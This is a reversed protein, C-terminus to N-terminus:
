FVILAQMAGWTICCCTWQEGPIVPIISADVVRLGSVGFVRLQDDVVAGERANAGMSCTSTIANGSHLYKRIYDNIAADGQMCNIPCRDPACVFAWVRVGM